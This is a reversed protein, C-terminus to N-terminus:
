LQRKTAPPQFSAEGTGMSIRELAVEEAGFKGVLSEVIKALDMGSHDRFFCPGCIVVPPEVFNREFATHLIGPSFTTWFKQPSIDKTKKM